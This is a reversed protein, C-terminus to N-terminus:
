KVGGTAAPAIKALTFGADEVAKHLEFPSPRVDGDFTVEVTGVGLDVNITKVGRVRELQLDLNSACLPCSMGKVYLLVSDGQLPVKSEVYESGACAILLMPLLALFSRIIIKSYM